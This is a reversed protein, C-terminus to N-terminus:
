LDAEKWELQSKQHDVATKDNVRAEKRKGMVASIIARSILNEEEFSLTKGYLEKVEQNINLWAESM